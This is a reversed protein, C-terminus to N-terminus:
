AFARGRRLFVASSPVAVALGAAFMWVAGQPGRWTWALGFLVSAALRTSATVTTILALGSARLGPPLADSAMAMLVGDTAAYYAGLLALVAAVGALGPGSGLLALYAGGLLLYGGLFVPATGVRDALRGLPVALILYAAATGVFLLPFLASRMGSTRAFVLYVFADSMTVLGLLGGAAVVRRFRPRGLLGVAARFSPRPGTGLAAARSPNRVFCALVGLGILAFCFSVVFVADYDDATIDLLAFALLPGALAGATDLARHVGFSEALRGPPSSHTILADRPATRIGKGTRDALLFGSAATATSSALLGLKCFASLAYGFGAVERFRRLRDALVGGAIRLLGAIGQYAGDFVGFALPTFGFQTMLYLPLIANVMESSVDTFLSTFGLAKVNPDVARGRWRTRRPADSADLAQPRDRVTTYVDRRDPTRTRVAHAPPHVSRW